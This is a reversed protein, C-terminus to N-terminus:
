GKPKADGAKDNLKKAKEAAKAASRKAGELKLAALKKKQDATLIKDAYEDSDDLDRVEKRLARLKREIKELEKIEKELEARRALSTAALKQYEAKQQETLDLQKWYFPLFKKADGGKDAKKGDQAILPASFGALALGLAGWATWNGIRMAM